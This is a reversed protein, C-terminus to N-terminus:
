VRRSTINYQGTWEASQIRSQVVSDNIIDLTYKTNEANIPISFKGSRPGVDELPTPDGLIYPTMVYTRTDRNRPTVEARFYLTGTYLIDMKKITLKGVETPVQNGNQEEKFHIESFRYHSEYTFGFWVAGFEPSGPDPVTAETGAANVTCAVETGWTAGEHNKFARLSGQLEPPITFPLTKTVFGTSSSGSLSSGYVKMDLHTLHGNDFGSYDSDEATLDLNCRIFLIEQDSAGSGAQHVTLYLYGNLLSVDAVEWSVTTGDNPLSWRSWSSQVKQDGIWYYRYVHFEWAPADSGVPNVGCTVITRTDDDGALKWIGKPLYNPVHSTIDSATLTDVDRQVYYEYVKSFDGNDATFIINSGLVIPECTSSVPYRTSTKLSVSKPTLLEGSGNIVAQSQSSFLIIKEALPIAYLWDGAGQLPQIDIPDSDLFTTVTTLYFNTYVGVESMIVRDGCLIGLRNGYTFLYQIEKGIFSPDPNTVTDGAGRTDWDEQSCTFTGDGNDELKLPMTDSSPKYPYPSFEVWSGNGFDDAIDDTHFSVYYDDYGSAKDGVVQTWFYNPAVTPLDTFKQVQNRVLRMNSNGKSDAISVKMSAKFGITPQLPYLHLVSGSIDTVLLGGLAAADLGTKLDAAIESTKIDAFVTDSTTKTVSVPGNVVPGVSHTTEVTITYDTAYDGQKVFVLAGGTFEPYNPTVYSSTVTIGKNLIYTKNGLTVCQFDALNDSSALYAKGDPFSVTKEFGNMDFVKLDGDAILVKYQSSPNRNITHVFPLLSGSGSWLRRVFEFPPRKVVGCVTDSLMNEQAECQTPNRITPPQQSVGNVLNAITKSVLM